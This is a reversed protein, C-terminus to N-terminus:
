PGSFRSAFTMVAVASRSRPESSLRSPSSSPLGRTTLVGPPSASRRAPSTTTVAASLPVLTSDFWPPAGTVTRCRVLRRRATFTAAPIPVRTTGPLGGSGGRGNGAVGVQIEWLPGRMADEVLVIATAHSATSRAAVYRM